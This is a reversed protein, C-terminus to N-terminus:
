KTIVMRITMMIAVKVILQEVVVVIMVMMMLLLVLKRSSFENDKMIPKQFYQNKPAVLMEKPWVLDIRMLFYVPQCNLWYRDFLGKIRLLPDTKSIWSIYTIYIYRNHSLVLKNLKFSTLLQNLLLFINHRLSRANSHFSYIILPFVFQCPIRKRKDTAHKPM